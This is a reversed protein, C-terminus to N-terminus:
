KMVPPPMTQRNDPTASIGMMKSNESTKTKNKSEFKKLMKLM